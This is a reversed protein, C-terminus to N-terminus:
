ASLTRRALVSPLSALAGASVCAQRLNQYWMQRVDDRSRGLLTAVRAELTEIDGPRSSGARKSFPFDTEPLLRESPLRSIQEDTMAANVSFYAGADVAVRIQPASGTFWHLIMGDGCDRITEVVLSHQGTSHISCLVHARRAASLIQEFVSRTESSPIKRDLGVEGVFKMKELLTEFRDVDFARVAAPLGPHTGVGWVVNPDTRRSAAQAEGLTRTVAFVTARGLTALQSRTVTPDIHAHMDLPPLVEDLSRSLQSSVNDM